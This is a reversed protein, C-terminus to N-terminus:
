PVPLAVTSKASDSYCINIIVSFVELFNECGLINDRYLAAIDVSSWQKGGITLAGDLLSAAKPIINYGDKIEQGHIKELNQLAEEISQRVLTSFEVQEQLSHTKQSFEEIRKQPKADKANPQRELRITMKRCQEIEEKNSKAEFGEIEYLYGLFNDQETVEPFYRPLDRLLYASFPEGEYTLQRTGEGEKFQPNQLMLQQKLRNFHYGYEKYARPDRNRDLKNIRLTLIKEKETAKKKDQVDRKTLSDRVLVADTPCDDMAYALELMSKSEPHLDAKQGEYVGQEPYVAQAEAPGFVSLSVNSTAM